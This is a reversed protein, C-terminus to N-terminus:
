IGGGKRRYLFFGLGGALIVLPAPSLRPFIITLWLILLFILKSTGDTLSNKKLKLLAELILVTVAVKIGTMAQKVAPIDSFGIILNGIIMIIVVGPIILGLTAVIAGLMGFQRYGIFTATNVAIIGPTTQGIAYYNTLDEEKAWGHKEVIERQLIPLMAYGGGFTFAGIKLFTFFLQALDRIM